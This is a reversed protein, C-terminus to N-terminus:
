SDTKMVLVQVTATYSGAPQDPSGQATGGLYIRLQGGESPLRVRQRQGPDFPTPNESPGPSFGADGPLFFLPLREGRTSVMERPLVLHVDALGFGSVVIEARRQVDRVDVSEPVGPLLTGFSLGQVAVASASSGGEGQAHAGAPIMGLCLLVFAM